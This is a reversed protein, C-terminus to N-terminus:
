VIESGFANFSVAGTSSQVTVVDTAALTIGLTLCLSDTQNLVLDYIIYQKATLTAGGQRIAVRVTATAGSNCLALTSLVASVGAGAIYLDAPTNAAPISQGLIKYSTAM